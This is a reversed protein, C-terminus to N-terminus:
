IICSHLLEEPTIFASYCDILDSNWYMLTYNLTLITRM